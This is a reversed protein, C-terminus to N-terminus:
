AARLRPSRTRTFVIEVDGSNRPALVRHTIAILRDISAPEFPMTYRVRWPGFARKTVFPAAAAGLEAHIADTLEIQRAIIRARRDRRWSTVVGPAALALMLASFVLLPPLVTM